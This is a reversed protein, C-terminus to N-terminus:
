DESLQELEIRMRRLTIREEECARRIEAVRESSVRTSSILVEEARQELCIQRLSGNGGWVKLGHIVKGTKRPDDDIFGIPALHLNHNNLIERLLLEGGDGAGYILVRRGERTRRTPLMQRMLRFAMRSGTLAGFFLLCDVVFVTRSFGQFRFAFLIILISVVTGLISAKAFSILDGISTYRWLGRYVGMTLNAVLKVFVIVPLTQMFMRWDFTDRISGFVLAYASYYVLVILAVDLLVEFVRRKYSLDVLFSVIPRERAAQIEEESYVKVGALYVGVLVLLVTFGFIAALSVDLAADRAIM